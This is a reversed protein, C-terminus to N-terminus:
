QQRCGEVVVVQKIDYHAGFASMIVNRSEGGTTRDIKIALHYRYVGGRTLRMDLVNSFSRQM